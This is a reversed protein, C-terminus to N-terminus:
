VRRGRALIAAQGDAGARLALTLSSRGARVYTFRTATEHWCPRSGCSGGPPAGARRITRGSGDYVCLQYDTTALPNGFDGKSTAAGHTWRWSLRDNTADSRHHISLSAARSRTPRRCGTAPGNACTAPNKQKVTISVTAPSSDSSGDNVTYTFSDSGHFGAAPTYTVTATDSSPLGLSCAHNTISGLTGHGPPTVISFTLECDNLDAGSLTIDVATDQDTAASASAASPPSRRSTRPRPSTTPTTASSTTSATPPM